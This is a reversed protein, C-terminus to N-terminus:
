GDLQIVPPHAQHNIERYRCNSSHEQIKENLADLTTEDIGNSASLIELRLRDANTYAEESSATYTPRSFGSCAVAQRILFISKQAARRSWQILTDAVAQRKYCKASCTSTELELVAFPCSNCSFFENLAMLHADHLEDAPVSSDKALPAVSCHHMANASYLKSIVRTYQASNHFRANTGGCAETFITCITRPGMIFEFKCLPVLSQKASVLKTMSSFPLLCIHVARKHPKDVAARNFNGGATKSPEEAATLDTDNLEFDSHPHAAVFSVLKDVITGMTLELLPFGLAVVRNWARQMARLSLGYDDVLLNAALAHLVFLAWTVTAVLLYPLRVQPHGPTAQWPLEPLLKRLPPQNTNFEILHGNGRSCVNKGATNGIVDQFQWAIKHVTPVVAAVCGSSRTVDAGSCGYSPIPDLILFPDQSIGLTAFRSPASRQFSEFIM